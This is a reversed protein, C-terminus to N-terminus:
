ANSLALWPILVVLFICLCCTGATWRILCCIATRLVRRLLMGYVVIGGIGLAVLALTEALQM